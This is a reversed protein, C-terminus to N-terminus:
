GAVCGCVVVCLWVCGCVVVCLWVCGCVVVSVCVHIIVPGICWGSSFFVVARFCGFLSLILRVAFMYDMNTVQSTDWEGIDQDFNTADQM